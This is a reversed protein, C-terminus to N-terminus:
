NHECFNGIGGLKVHVDGREIAHQGIVEGGLPKAGEAVVINVFGRGKEYRKNIKEVIRELNYPIEPILCIEAGGSIATHLAIWGADRGMVEMIIVRHHSEATTM